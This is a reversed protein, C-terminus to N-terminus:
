RHAIGGETSSIMRIRGKSDKKCCLKSRVPEAVKHQVMEFKIQTESNHLNCSGLIVMVGLSRDQSFNSSCVGMHDAKSMNSFLSFCVTRWHCGM